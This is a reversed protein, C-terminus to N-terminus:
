GSVNKGVTSLLLLCRSAGSVSWLLLLLSRPATLLCGLLSPILQPAAPVLSQHHPPIVVPRKSHDVVPVQTPVAIFPTMPNSVKREFLGVLGGHKIRTQDIEIKKELAGVNTM